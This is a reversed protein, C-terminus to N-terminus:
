ECWYWGEYQGDKLVIRYGGPFTIYTKSSDECSQTIQFHLNVDM